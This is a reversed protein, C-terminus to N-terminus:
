QLLLRGLSQDHPSRAREHLGRARLGFGEFPRPSSSSFPISGADALGVFDINLVRFRTSLTDVRCRDISVGASFDVLDVGTESYLPLDIYLRSILSAAADAQFYSEGFPMPNVAVDFTLNPDFTVSIVSGDGHEGSKTAQENVPELLTKGQELTCWCDGQYPALCGPENVPDSYTSIPAPQQKSGIEAPTPKQELTYVSPDTPNRDGTVGPDSCM